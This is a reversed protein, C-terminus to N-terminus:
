YCFNSNKRFIILKGACHVDFMQLFFLESSFFSFFLRRFAWRVSKFTTNFHHFDLMRLHFSNGLPVRKKMKEDLDSLMDLGVGSDWGVRLFFYFSFLKLNFIFYQDTHATRHICLFIHNHIYCLNFAIPFILLQSSRRNM